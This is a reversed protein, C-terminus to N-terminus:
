DFNLLRRSAGCAALSSSPALAAGLKGCDNFQFEADFHVRCPQVHRREDRRSNFRCTVQGAAAAAASAACRPSSLARCPNQLAPGPLLHCRPLIYMYIPASGSCGGPECMSKKERDQKQPTSPHPIQPYPQTHTLPASGTNRNM